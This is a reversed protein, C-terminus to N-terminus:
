STCLVQELLSDANCSYKARLLVTLSISTLCVQWRLMDMTVYKFNADDSAVIHYYVNITLWTQACYNQFIPKPPPEGFLQKEVHKFFGKLKRGLTPKRTKLKKDNTYLCQSLVEPAKNVPRLQTFFELYEIELDNVHQIFPKLYPPPTFEPGTYYDALSLNFDSSSDSSRKEPKSTSARALGFPLILCFYISRFRM